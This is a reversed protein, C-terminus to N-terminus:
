DTVGSQNSVSAAAPTYSKTESEEHSDTVKPPLYEDEGRTVIFDTAEVLTAICSDVVDAALAIYTKDEETTYCAVVGGDNTCVTFTIREDSLQHNVVRTLEVVKKPYKHMHKGNRKASKGVGEPIQVGYHTLHDIPSSM